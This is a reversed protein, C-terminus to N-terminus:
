QLYSSTGALESTRPAWPRYNYSYCGPVFVAGPVGWVIGWYRRHVGQSCKYGLSAKNESEKAKRRWVAKFKVKEITPIQSEQEEEYPSSTTLTQVLFIQPRSSIPKFTDGSGTCGWFLGLLSAEIWDPSPSDRSHSLHSARTKPSSHLFDIRM